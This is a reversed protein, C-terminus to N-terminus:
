LMKNYTQANIKKKKRIIIVAIIMKELYKKINNLKKEVKTILFINIAYFLNRNKYKLTKSCIRLVYIENM